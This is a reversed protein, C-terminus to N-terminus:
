ELKVSTFLHIKDNLMITPLSSINVKSTIKVGSKQLFYFRKIIFVKM